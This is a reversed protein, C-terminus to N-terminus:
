KKAAESTGFLANNEEIKSRKQLALLEEKEKLCCNRIQDMMQGMARFSVHGLLIYIFNFNCAFFCLVM